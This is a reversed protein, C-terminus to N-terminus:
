NRLPPPQGELKAVQDEILNLLTNINIVLGRLREPDNERAIQERLDHLAESGLENPM